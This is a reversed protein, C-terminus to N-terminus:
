WDAPDYETHLAVSRVDGSRYRLPSGIMHVLQLKVSMALLALESMDSAPVFVYAQLIDEHASLMGINKPEGRDDLMNDRSSLVIEARPYRFGAPRHVAGRLTLTGYHKYPGADWKKDGIGFSWWRDWRAVTVVYTILEGVNRARKKSRKM